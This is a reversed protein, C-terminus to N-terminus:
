KQLRELERILQSRTFPRNTGTRQDYQNIELHLHKGHDPLSASIGTHGVVGIVQGARVIDRTKVSISRLHCYRYFREQGPDFVIVENGGEPSTVAFPRRPQWGEEALVVIGATMSKVASGEETFLDIADPHCSRCNPVLPVYHDLPPVLDNNLSEHPRACLETIYRKRVAPTIFPALGLMVNDQPRIRIKGQRVKELFPESYYMMSALYPDGLIKEADKAMLLDSGRMIENQVFAAESQNTKRVKKPIPAGLLVACWFFFFLRKPVM